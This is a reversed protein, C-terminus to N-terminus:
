ARHCAHWRGGRAPGVGGGLRELPLVQDVAFYGKWPDGKQRKLVAAATEVTAPQASELRASRPGRWRGPSRRARGRGARIPRSRRRAAATASITSSSRARAGRRRCTPSTAGPNTRPWPAPSRRPSARSTTGATNAADAARRRAPGQRRDGHRVIRPRDGEAPRADGQAADRVAAFDLGEDPDFDFVIRDPEELTDIHSGWIHLELVGMQVSAVLGRVDEIYLYIDSGSKEKIRIPKFESPFGQSAHKQFFCDGGAGRPLAGPQAAPLRCAAPHPRRGRRLIRDLTRKTVGPGPVARPRSPHHPRGRDRDHRRRRRHRRHCRGHAEDRGEGARGCPQRARRSPM